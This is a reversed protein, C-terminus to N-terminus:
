FIVRAPWNSSSSSCWRMKVAVRAPRSVSKGAMTGPLRTVTVMAGTRQQVLETLAIARGTTATLLAVARAAAANGRPMLLLAVAGLFSIYITWAMM